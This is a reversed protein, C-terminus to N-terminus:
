PRPVRANAPMAEHVHGAATANARFTPALQRVAAVEQALEAGTTDLAVVLLSATAIAVLYPIGMAPQNGVVDLVSDVGAVAAGLAVAASIANVVVHVASPPAATAGFCGCSESGARRAFVVIVAFAGYLVAVVLALVPGGVLLAAVGVALEATGILRVVSAGSPLGLDALLRSTPRPSRLKAVGSIALVVSCVGFAATLVDM